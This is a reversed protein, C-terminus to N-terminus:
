LKVALRTLLKAELRRKELEESWNRLNLFNV